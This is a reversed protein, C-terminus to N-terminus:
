AGADSWVWVYSCDMCQGDEKTLAETATCLVGETAGSCAATASDSGFIWFAKSRTLAASSAAALARRSNRRIAFASIADFRAVFDLM